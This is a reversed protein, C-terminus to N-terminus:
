PYLPPQDDVTLSVPSNATTKISELFISVCLSM